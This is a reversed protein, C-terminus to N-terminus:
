YVKKGKKDIMFWDNSNWMEHEDEIVKSCKISVKAKGNEFPYACEYRPPIVIEGLENAYGIKGNEIIRFLGESAYDPGNDYAFVQFIAKDHRDIGIFGRKKDLVIGFNKITDTFYMEYKGFPIVTDGKANLYGYSHNADESLVLM